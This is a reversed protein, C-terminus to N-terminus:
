IRKGDSLSEIIVTDDLPMKNVFIREKQNQQQSKSWIIM